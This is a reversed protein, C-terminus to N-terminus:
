TELSAIISRIEASIQDIAGMGNIERLLNQKKYFDLIPLTKDMYTEFRNIITKENDDSRKNLFKPYCKHNNRTSPLFFENFIILEENESM